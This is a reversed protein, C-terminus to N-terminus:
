ANLHSCIGLNREDGLAKANSAADTGLFAGKTGDVDDVQGGVELGLHGM